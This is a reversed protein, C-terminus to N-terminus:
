VDVYVYIYMYIYMYIYVYICIYMYIYMYIYPNWDARWSLFISLQHSLECTFEQNWGCSHSDCKLKLHNNFGFALWRSLWLWGFPVCATCMADLEHFKLVQSSICECLTWMRSCKCTNYINCYMIITYIYTHTHIYIYVCRFIVYRMHLICVSISTHTHWHSEDSTGESGQNDTKELAVRNNTQPWVELAASEEPTEHWEPLRTCESPHLVLPHLKQRAAEDIEM